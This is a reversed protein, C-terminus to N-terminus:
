RRVLALIRHRCVHAAKALEIILAATFAEIM